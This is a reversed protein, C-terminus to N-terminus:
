GGMGKKEKLLLSEHLGAQDQVQSGESDAELPNCIHTM